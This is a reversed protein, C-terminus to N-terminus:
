SAEKAPHEICGERGCTTTPVQYTRMAELAESFLEEDRVLKNNTSLSTDMWNGSSVRDIERQIYFAAKKLDEVHKADNKWGARALYKFANGRNYNGTGDPARLQECVDIVEFGDYQNYHNPHNVVDEKQEAELKDARAKLAQYRDELLKKHLDHESKTEAVNGIVNTLGSNQESISQMDM